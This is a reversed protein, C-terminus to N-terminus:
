NKSLGGPHCQRAEDWAGDDSHHHCRYGRACDGVRGEKNAGFHGHHIACLILLTLNNQKLRDIELFSPIEVRAEAQCLGVMVTEPALYPNHSTTPPIHRDATIFTSKNQGAGSAPKDVCNEMYGIAVSAFFIFYHLLMVKMGPHKWMVGFGPAARRYGGLPIQSARPELPLVEGGVKSVSTNGVGSEGKDKDEGDNGIGEDNDEGGEGSQGDNEGVVVSQSQVDPIGAVRKATVRAHSAVVCEKVNMFLETARDLKNECYSRSGEGLVGLVSFM